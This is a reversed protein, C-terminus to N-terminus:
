RITFILNITIFNIDTTEIEYIDGNKKATKHEFTNNSLFTNYYNNSENQLTGNLGNVYYATCDLTSLEEIMDNIDTDPTPEPESDKEAEAIATLATNVITEDLNIECLYFNFPHGGDNNENNWHVNEGSQEWGVAAALYVERKSSHIKFITNSNNELIVPDPTSSLRIERTEQDNIFLGNELSFIYTNGKASKYVYWYPNVGTEYRSAFAFTTSTYGPLHSEALKIQRDYDKSYVLYGRSGKPDNNCIQYVGTTIETSPTTAVVNATEVKLTVDIIQGGNAKFDGFKGDNDGAPDISCWDQVYRMRYTGAKTPAIFSPIAPKNRNNGSINNGISNYGYEDSSGGNNYFSYAVLDGTPEYNSGSKIGTTFGDHNFDVFVSCHVWSGISTFAPTVTEGAKVTFTTTGTKDTWDKSQEESTLSYSFEGSTEGTLKVATVNRDSRTKEGNNTPTYNVQAAATSFISLLLVFFFFLKKM